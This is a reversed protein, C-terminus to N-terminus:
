SPGPGRRVANVTIGLHALEQALAQTLTATATKSMGYAAMSSVAYLGATSTINILRADLVGEAEYSKQWHQAAAHATATTVKVNVRRLADIATEALDLFGGLEFIRHGSVSQGCVFRCGHRRRERESGCSACRSTPWVSLGTM